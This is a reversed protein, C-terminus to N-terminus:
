LDITGNDVRRQCSRCRRNYRADFSIFDKGCINCAILKEKYAQLVVSPGRNKPHKVLRLGEAELEQTLRAIHRKHQAPKM